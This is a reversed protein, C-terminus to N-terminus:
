MIFKYLQLAIYAIGETQACHNELIQKMEDEHKIICETQWNKVLMFCTGMNLMTTNPKERFHDRRTPTTSVLIIIDNLHGKHKSPNNSSKPRFYKYLLIAL